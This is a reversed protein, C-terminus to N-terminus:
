NIVLRGESQMEDIDDALGNVVRRDRLHRRARTSLTAIDCPIPRTRRGPPRLRLRLCAQRGAECAGACPSLPRERVQVAKSRTVIDCM